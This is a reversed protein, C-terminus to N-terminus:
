RPTTGRGGRRAAGEPPTHRILSIVVGETDKDKAAAPALSTGHAPTALAAWHASASSHPYRGTRPQGIQRMFRMSPRRAASIASSVPRWSDLYRGAWRRSPCAAELVERRRISARQAIVDFSLLPSFGGGMHPYSLLYEPRRERGHYYAAESRAGRVECSGGQGGEQQPTDKEARSTSGCWGGSSRRPHSAGPLEISPRSASPPIPAPASSSPRTGTRARSLCM